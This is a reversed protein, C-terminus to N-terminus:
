LNKILEEVKVKIEERIKRILSLADEGRMKAPDPLSWHLRRVGPIYPCTESAQDCLTIILNIEKLPIEELGKPHAESLDFGEERMVEIVFPNVEKEPNAGASFIEINKQYLKAFHKAYTEAMQSRASNGTCIFAIKM